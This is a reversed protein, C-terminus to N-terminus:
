GSTERATPTLDASQPSEAQGMAEKLRPRLADSDLNQTFTGDEMFSIRGTEESVVVARADLAGASERHSTTTGSPTKSIATADGDGVFDFEHM